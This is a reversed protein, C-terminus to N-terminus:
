QRERRPNDGRPPAARWSPLPGSGGHAAQFAASDAEEAMGVGAHEVHVAVQRLVSGLQAGMDLDQFHAVQGLAHVGADTRGAGVVETQERLITSLADQLVQQVSIGNPQIQWGVYNKGNYSLTIFFRM